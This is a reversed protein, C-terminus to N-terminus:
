EYNVVFVLISSFGAISKKPHSLLVLIYMTLINQKSIILILRVRDFMLDGRVMMASKRINGSGNKHAAFITLIRKILDVKISLFTKFSSSTPHSLLLISCTSSLPRQRQQAETDKM